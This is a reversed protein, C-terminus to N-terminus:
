KLSKRGAFLVIALVFCAILPLLLENLEPVPVPRAAFVTLRQCLQAPQGEVNVWVEYNGFELGEPVDFPVSFTKKENQLIDQPDSSAESGSIGASVVVDDADAGDNIVEVTATVRDNPKASAPSLSCSSIMFVSTAPGVSCDSPSDQCSFSDPDCKQL